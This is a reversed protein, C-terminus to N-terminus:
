SALDEPSEGRVVSKNMIKLRRDNVQSSSWPAETFFHHLRQYTVKLANEAM